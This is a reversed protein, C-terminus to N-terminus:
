AQNYISDHIEHSKAMKVSDPGMMAEKYKTPKDNNFYIRQGCIM